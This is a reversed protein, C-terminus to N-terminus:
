ISSLINFINVFAGLRQCPELSEGPRLQPLALKSPRASGSNSRKWSLRLDLGWGQAGTKSLSKLTEFPPLIKLDGSSLFRIPLEEAVLHSRLALFLWFHVWLLPLTSLSARGRGPGHPSPGPPCM